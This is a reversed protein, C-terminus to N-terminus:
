VIRHHSSRRHCGHILSYQADSVPSHHNPQMDVNLLTKCSHRLSFLRYRKYPERPAPTEAHEDVAPPDQPSPVEATLKNQFEEGKLKACQERHNCIATLLTEAASVVTLKMEDEMVQELGGGAKWYTYTIADQAFRQLGSSPAVRQQFLHATDVSTRFNVTPLLNMWEVDHHISQGVLVANKPILTRLQQTIEALTLKSTQQSTEDIGTLPTLYSIVNVDPTLKCIEDLLVEREGNVLAVRIPYRNNYWSAASVNADGDSSENANTKGSDHGCGIALCEVDLSYFPEGVLDLANTAKCACGVRYSRRIIWNVIIVFM